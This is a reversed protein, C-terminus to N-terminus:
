RPNPKISTELRVAENRAEDFVNEKAKASDEIVKCLLLIAGEFSHKVMEMAINPNRSPLPRQSFELATNCEDIAVCLFAAAKPNHAEIRAIDLQRMEKVTETLSNRSVLSISLNASYDDLAAEINDRWISCSVSLTAFYLQGARKEKTQKEQNSHLAIWVAAVTASFTALSGVWAVFIPNILVNGLGEFYAGTFFVLIFLSLAGAIWPSWEVYNAAVRRWLSRQEGM